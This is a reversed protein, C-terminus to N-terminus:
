PWCARTPYQRRQYQVSAVATCSFRHDENGIVATASTELGTLRSLTQQLLMTDGCLKLFQKPNLQRSFRRLRSSTGGAMIAPMLM